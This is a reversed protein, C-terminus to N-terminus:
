ANKFFFRLWMVVKNVRPLENKNKKETNELDNHPISVWFWRLLLSKYGNQNYVNKHLISDYMLEQGNNDRVFLIILQTRM